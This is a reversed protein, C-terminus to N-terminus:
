VHSNANLKEQNIFSSPTAEIFARTVRALELPRSYNLTHGGGPIVVLRGDPLLNVVEEAWPQPVVPDQQGRVVLTPVRIYPLKEEIRDALAMQMTEVVRPLGAQWYDYLQIPTQSADEWPANQLFRWMQQPINRAHRDITPGQLV